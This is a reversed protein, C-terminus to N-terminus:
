APLDSLIKGAWATAIEPKMTEKPDNEQKWKEPIIGPFSIMSKPTLDYRQVLPTLFKEVAKEPEEIAMGSSLFLYLNKQHITKNKLIKKWRRYVMFMRVGAGLILTDFDKIDPLESSLNCLTVTQKEALLTDAIVQAYQETAGGKTVYAVLIKNSMPFGYFPFKM